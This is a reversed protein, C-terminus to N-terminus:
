TCNVKEKDKTWGRTQDKYGTDRVTLLPRFGDVNKGDREREKEKAEKRGEERLQTGETVGGGTGGSRGSDARGDGGGGRAAERM